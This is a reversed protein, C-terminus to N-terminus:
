PATGGARIPLRQSAPLASRRASAYRGRRLCAALEEVACTTPKGRALNSQDSLWDNAIEYGRLLAPGAAAHVAVINAFVRAFEFGFAIKPLKDCNPVSGGARVAGPISKGDKPM